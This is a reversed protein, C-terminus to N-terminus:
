SPIQFGFTMDLYTIISGWIVLGEERRWSGRQMDVQGEKWISKHIESHVLRWVLFKNFALPVNDRGISRNEVVQRHFRWCAVVSGPIGFGGGGVRVGFPRKDYACFRRYMTNTQGGDVWAPTHPLSITRSSSRGAGVDCSHFNRDM